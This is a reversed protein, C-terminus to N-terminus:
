AKIKKIQKDYKGTADEAESIYGKVLKGIKELVEDKKTANYRKVLREITNSQENTFIIEAAEIEAIQQTTCGDAYCITTVLPIGNTSLDTGVDEPNINHKYRHMKGDPIYATIKGGKKFRPPNINKSIRGGEEWLDSCAQKQASFPNKKQGCKHRARFSKRRKKNKHKTFDSYGKQGYHVAKKKGQACVVKYKKKNKRWSRGVQGCKLKKVSKKKVSGGSKFTDITLIKEFVEDLTINNMDSSNLKSGKQSKRVSKSTTSDKTRKDRPVLLDVVESNKKVRSPYNKRNNWKSPLYRMIDKKQTPTLQQNYRVGLILLTAIASKKPDLFDKNSTIGFKSLAKKEDDNLFSWRIQTLGVSNSENGAFKGYTTAKSKYDPSSSSSPNFFKTTARALNGIASHTDGFNTETGFIGVAVKALENYTDSSVKVTKM